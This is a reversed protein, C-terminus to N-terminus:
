IGLFFGLLADRSDLAVSGLGKIGASGVRSADLNKSKGHTQVLCM